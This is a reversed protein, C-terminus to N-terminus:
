KKKKKKAKNKSEFDVSKLVTLYVDNGKTIYFYCKNHSSINFYMIPQKLTDRADLLEEFKEIKIINKDDFRPMTKTQVILRDYEKFVKDIYKDYESKSGFILFVLELFRLLAAVSCIFLVAAIAVFLKNDLSYGSQSTINKTSNLAASDSSINIARQSLPITMTMNNTENVNMGSIVKNVKFNIVFSSSADLGYSSKFKNALNNYYDYDVSISESLNYNNKNDIKVRNNKLLMYEKTYYVNSGTSDSIQLTGIISYNLEVDHADSLQIQYSFDATINKILSTVYVLNKGLYQQEYFDNPKLYVKYDINGNDSYSTTKSENFSISKMVLIYSAGFLAVFLIGFLIVRLEYSIYIKKRSTNKEKKVKMAKIAPQEKLKNKEKKNM